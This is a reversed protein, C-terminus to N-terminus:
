KKTINGSGAVKKDVKDPNGKYYIDGSGMVAAKLSSTATLQFDGSGTVSASANKAKLKFARIDGSGILTGEFKDVSGDLVMDGSGSVTASLKNASLSLKINGSGELNTKLHVAKIVDSTYIGGSGALSIENLDEFPVTIILMQNKSPRIDFGQKVKIKLSKGVVMTRIYELLNEEGQLKLEGERGRVLEVELNGFVKIQDYDSVSRIESTLHGNGKVKKNGLHQAQLSFIGCLLVTLILNLKKMM